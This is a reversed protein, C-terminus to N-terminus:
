VLTGHWCNRTQDGSMVANLAGEGRVFTQLQAPDLRFYMATLLVLWFPYSSPCRKRLADGGPSLMLDLSEGFRYVIKLMTRPQSVSKLTMLQDIWAVGPFDGRCKMWAFDSVSTCNGDASVQALAMRQLDPSEVLEFEISVLKELYRFGYVLDRDDGLYERYRGVVARAAAVHDLAIVYVIRSSSTFHVKLWEFLRVMNEPSCRDLDDIFLIIKSVDAVAALIQDVFEKMQDAVREIEPTAIEDAEIQLNETAAEAVRLGLDVRPSLVRGVATLSRVLRRGVAM